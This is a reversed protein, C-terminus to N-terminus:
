VLRCVRPLRLAMLSGVLRRHVVACRPQEECAGVRRMKLDCTTVRRNADDTTTVQKRCGSVDDNSKSLNSRQGKAPKVM